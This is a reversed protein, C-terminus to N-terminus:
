LYLDKFTKIYLPRQFNEFKEIIKEFEDESIWKNEFIKLTRELCYPNGCDIKFGLDIILDIGCDEIRLNKATMRKYPDLVSKGEFSKSIANLFIYSKELDEGLENHHYWIDNRESYVSNNYYQVKATIARENTTYKWILLSIFLKDKLEPLKVYENAM